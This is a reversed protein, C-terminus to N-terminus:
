RRYLAAADRKFAAGSDPRSYFMHGGPYVALRVRNEVGFTPMQDVILRSGFYPCSLDNYGHAILVGMHADNAIAQRLDSVPSDNPTGRQWAENVAYSLANYRADTQWGVTRTIFDVMASTTPAILANLIPDGGRQRASGPFPDFTTVNSDYASGIERAERHVERLFTGSDVRGDMHDVLTRDLGTLETVHDVLRQRAAPDSRGALLDTVFQTRTYQEIPAM